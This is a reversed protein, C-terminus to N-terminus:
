MLHFAVEVNGHLDKFIVQTVKVRGSADEQEEDYVLEILNDREIESTYDDDTVEEGGDSEFVFHDCIRAITWLCVVVAFDYPHQRTKCFSKGCMTEFFDRSIMFPECTEDFEEAGNFQIVNETIIPAGEGDPNRLNYGAIYMPLIRRCVDFAVSYNHMDRETIQDPQVPNYRYIGEGDYLYEEHNRLKWYHTYGM